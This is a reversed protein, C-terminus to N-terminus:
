ITKCQFSRVIQGGFWLGGQLGANQLYSNNELKCYYMNYNRFKWSSNRSQTLFPGEWHQQLKDRVKYLWAIVTFPAMIDISYSTWHM